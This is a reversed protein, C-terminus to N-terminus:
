DPPGNPTVPLIPAPSRNAKQAEAARQEMERTERPRGDAGRETMPRLTQTKDENEKAM